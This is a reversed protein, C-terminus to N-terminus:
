RMLLYPNYPVVWGNDVEVETGNSRKILFTLGGQAPSRRRLQPYEDKVQLTDECYPKPFGKKCTGNKRMCPANPNHVGCPGHIMHTTVLAFLEPHTERCPIEACTFRDYDATTKPKDSDQLTLLIHAHPLGRKQWEVICQQAIPQIFYSSTIIIDYIYYQTCRVQGCVKTSTLDKLLARLKVDFIRAIVDPRNAYPINNAAQSARYSEKVEPWKPNCTITIFLDPRGFSTARAMADQYQEEFWRPGGVFSSPLVFHGLSSASATNLAHDHKMADQIVEYKEAKLEHQHTRVYHLRNSEMCTFLDLCYQQLLKGGALLVDEQLPANRQDRIQLIHKAFRHWSVYTAKGSNTTTKSQLDCHWGSEAYHHLLPYSLPLYHAKYCPIEKLTNTSNRWQGPKRMHVVSTRRFDMEANDPDYQMVVAVERAEVTNYVGSHHHAPPVAEIAPPHHGTPVKDVICFRTTIRQNEPLEDYLDKCMKLEKYFYNVKKVETRLSEVLAAVTKNFKFFYQQSTANTDDAMDGDPLFEVFYAQMYQAIRHADPIVTSIKHAFNGEIIYAPPGKAYKAPLAHTKVMTCSFSLAANIRRIEDHFLKSQPHCFDLLNAMLKNPPPQLFDFLIAGKECCITYKKDGFDNRENESYFAGCHDCQEDYLSTMIHVHVSLPNFSYMNKYFVAAGRLSKPPLRRDITSGQKNTTITTTVLTSNVVVVGDDDEESDEDGYTISKDKVATGTCIHTTEEEEEDSSSIDENYVESALSENNNDNGEMEDEEAEDDFFRAVGSMKSSSSTTAVNRGFFADRARAFSAEQPMSSLAVTQNQRGRASSSNNLRQKQSQM